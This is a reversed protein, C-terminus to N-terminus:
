SDPNLTPVIEARAGTKPSRVGSEQNGVGSKLRAWEKANVQVGFLRVQGPLRRYPLVQPRALLFGYLAPPRYWDPHNLHRARDAVFNQPSNYVLCDTLEASGIIGGRLTATKQAEIPVLEWGEPRDDIQRSAHILIPGRHRTLWRRIEITKVGHVVLAAWPQKLSLAYVLRSM